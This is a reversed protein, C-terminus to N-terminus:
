QKNLVLRVENDRVKKYTQDDDCPGGIFIYGIKESGAIVNGIMEMDEALYTQIAGPWKRDTM